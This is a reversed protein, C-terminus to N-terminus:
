QIPIYNPPNLPISLKNEELETNLANIMDPYEKVLENLTYLVSDNRDKMEELNIAKEALTEEEPSKGCTRRYFVSQSRVKRKLDNIKGEKEHMELELGNFVDQYHLNEQENEEKEKRLLSLRENDENLDNHSFYFILICEKYNKKDKLYYM